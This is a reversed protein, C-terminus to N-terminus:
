IAIPLQNGGRLRRPLAGSSFRGGRWSGAPRVPIALQDSGRRRSNAVVLMGSQSACGVPLVRGVTRVVDGVKTSKLRSIARARRAWLRLFLFVDGAGATGPRKCHTISMHDSADGFPLFCARTLQ